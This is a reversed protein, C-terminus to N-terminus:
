RATAAVNWSRGGGATRGQGCSWIVRRSTCARTLDGKGNVIGQLAFVVAQEEFSFGGSASAVASQVDFSHVIHAAAAPTTPAAAPPSAAAAATGAATAVLLPLLLM